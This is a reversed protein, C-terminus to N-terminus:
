FGGVFSKIFISIIFRELISLPTMTNGLDDRGNSGRLLEQAREQFSTLAKNEEQKLNQINEQINLNSVEVKKRPYQKKFALKFEEVDVPKSQEEFDIFKTFQPLSDLLDEAKGTSLIKIANFFIDPTIEA